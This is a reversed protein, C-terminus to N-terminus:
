LAVEMLEDYIDEGDYAISVNNLWRDAVDDLGIEYLWEQQKRGVEIAHELENGHMGTDIASDIANENWLISGQNETALMKFAREYEKSFYQEGDKSDGYSNEAIETIRKLAYEINQM